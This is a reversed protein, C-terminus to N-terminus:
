SNLDVGNGFSSGCRCSRRSKSLARFAPTFWAAIGTRRNMFDRVATISLHALSDGLEKLDKESLVEQPERNPRRAVPFSVLMNAM